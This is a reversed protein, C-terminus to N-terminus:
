LDMINTMSSRAFSAEGNTFKVGNKIWVDDSGRTFCFQISYTGNPDFPKHYEPYNLLGVKGNNLVHNGSAVCNDILSGDFFVSKNNIDKSFVVFTWEGSPFGDPCSIYGVYNASYSEENNGKKSGGGCGAFTFLAAMMAALIYLSRFKIFKKM